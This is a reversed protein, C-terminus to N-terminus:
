ILFNCWWMMVDCLKREIPRTACTCLWRVNHQKLDIATGSFVYLSRSSKSWVIALLRTFTFRWIYFAWPKNCASFYLLPHLSTIEFSLSLSFHHLILSLQIWNYGSLSLKLKCRNAGGSKFTVLYIFVKLYLHM